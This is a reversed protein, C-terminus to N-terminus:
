VRCVVCVCVCVCVCDCCGCGQDSGPDNTRRLDGIRSFSSYGHGGMCERATQIADRAEWTALAKAGSSIAHLEATRRAYDDDGDAGDEMLAIYHEYLWDGFFGQMLNGALFPLLQTHQLQYSLVSREEDGPAAAFQRRVASYRTAICLALRAKHVAQCAIAVRGVSLASLTLGFRQSASAAHLVYEGDATVDQLRNLLATRPLRVSEFACGGHDLWNWGAKPGIDIVTVGDLTEHTEMDRLPVVFWHLGKSDGDHILQAGVVGHTAHKGLNGSWWKTAEVCPTQLVFEGAARDYTATTLMGQTNTGHAMETLMVCGMKRLSLM